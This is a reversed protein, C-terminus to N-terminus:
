PQTANQITITVPIKLAETGRTIGITVPKASRASELFTGWLQATPFNKDNISYVADGSELGAKAFVSNKVVSEIEFAASMKGEPTQQYAWSGVLGDFLSVAVEVGHRLYDQLLLNIESIPLVLGKEANVVVGMLNRQRDFIPAGFFENGPAFALLAQRERFVVEDLTEEASFRQVMGSFVNVRSSNNILGIIIGETGPVVAESAPFQPASFSGGARYFTVGKEPYVRVLLASVIKGDALVVSLSNKPNPVYPTLFVGDATLVTGIQIVTNKENLIGVVNGKEADIVGVYSSEVQSQTQITQVVRSGQPNKKLFTQTEFKASIIGALLGLVVFVVLTILLIKVTITYPPRQNNM